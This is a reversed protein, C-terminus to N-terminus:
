INKIAPNQTSVKSGLQTKRFDLQHRIVDLPDLKLEKKRFENILDGLRDWIMVQVLAYAALAYSAFNALSTQEFKSRVNALPPPSSHTPSWPM